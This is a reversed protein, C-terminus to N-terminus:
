ATPQPNLLTLLRRKEEELSLREIELKLDENRKANRYNIISNATEHTAKEFLDPLTNWLDSEPINATKFLVGTCTQTLDMDTITITYVHNEYKSTLALNRKILDDRLTNMLSEFDNKKLVNCSLTHGLIGEALFDFEDTELLRQLMFKSIEFTSHEVGPKREELYEKKKNELRVKEEMLTKLVSGAGASINAPNANAIANIEQQLNGISTDLLVNFITININSKKADASSKDFFKKCSQVFTPSPKCIVELFFSHKQASNRHFSVELKSARELSLIKDGNISSVKKKNLWHHHLAVALRFSNSLIIQSFSILENAALGALPAAAAAAM